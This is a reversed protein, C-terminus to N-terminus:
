QFMMQWIRRFHQGEQHSLCHKLRLAACRMWRSCIGTSIAQVTKPAIELGGVQWDSAWSAQPSTDLFCSWHASATPESHLLSHAEQVWPLFKGHNADSSWTDIILEINDWSELLCKSAFEESLPGGSLVSCTPYLRSLLIYKCHSVILIVELHSIIVHLGKDKM